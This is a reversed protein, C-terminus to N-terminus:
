KFKLTALIKLRVVKGGGKEPFARFRAGDNSYPSEMEGPFPPDRQQNWTVDPDKLSLEPRAPDFSITSEHVGREDSPAEDTSQMYTIIGKSFDVDQIIASHIASGDQTIFLLIDGPRLNKIKPDINELAKSGSNYFSTGVYYNATDGSPAGLIRRFRAPLDVGAKDAVYCLTQWVFGSCDIGVLGMCYLYNYIDSQRIGQGGTLVWPEHPLQVYAGSSM